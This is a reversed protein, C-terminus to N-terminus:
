KRFSPNAYDLLREPLAQWDIAKAQEAWFGEPDELSWRHFEEYRM